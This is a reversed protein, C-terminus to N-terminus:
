GMAVIRSRLLAKRCRWEGDQALTPLPVAKRIEEVFDLLPEYWQKLSNASWGLYIPVERAEALTKHMKWNGVVLPTRM